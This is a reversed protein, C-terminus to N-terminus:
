FEDNSFLTTKPGNLKARLTNARRNLAAATSWDKRNIAGSISAEIKALSSARNLQKNRHAIADM